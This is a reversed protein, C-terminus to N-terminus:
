ALTRMVEVTHFGNAPVTEVSGSITVAWEAEFLGETDTDNVAWAYEAVGGAADVVTAAANVKLAGGRPRMRFVVSAGTLNVVTGDERKLTRRIKPLRDGRKIHLDAM